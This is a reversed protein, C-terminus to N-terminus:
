YDGDIAKRNVYEVFCEVQDMDPSDPLISIEGARRLREEYDMLIDYFEKSFTKDQRQFGGNRIKLLLDLDTSRNTNIEGKELIDIAMLFLRILHM